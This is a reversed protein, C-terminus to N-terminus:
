EEKLEHWKCFDTMGPDSRGDYRRCIVPRKEYIRCGALPDLHQCVSPFNIFLRRHTLFPLDAEIKVRCGRTQYFNVTDAYLKERSKEIDLIVMAEKCCKLCTLCLRQKEKEIESVDIKSPKAPMM